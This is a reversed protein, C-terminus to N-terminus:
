GSQGSVFPWLVKLLTALVLLMLAALMLIEHYRVRERQHAVRRFAVMARQLDETNSFDVMVPQPMNRLLELRRRITQVDPEDADHPTIDGFGDLDERYRRLEPPLVEERM